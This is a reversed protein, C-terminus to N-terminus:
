RGSEVGFGIRGSGCLAGAERYEFGLEAKGPLYRLRLELRAEPLILRMFKMNSMYGFQPPLPFHRRGFQVAWTTQVVGPLIPVGPFHGEFWSLQAPIRLQIHVADGHREIDLVEPETM